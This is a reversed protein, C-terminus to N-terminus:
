IRTSLKAIPENTIELFYREGEPIFWNVIM